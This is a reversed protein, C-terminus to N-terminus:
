LDSKRRSAYIIACNDIPYISEHVIKLLLTNPVGAELFFIDQHLRQFRNLDSLVDHFGTIVVLVLVPSFHM